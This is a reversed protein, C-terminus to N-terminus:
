DMTSSPRPDQACCPPPAPAAGIQLRLDRGAPRDAASRVTPPRQALRSRMVRSCGRGRDDSSLGLPGPSKYVFKGLRTASANGPAEPQSAAIPDPELVFGPDPCLPDSSYIQAGM